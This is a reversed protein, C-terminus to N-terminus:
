GIVSSPRFCIMASMSAIIRSASRRDASCNSARGFPGTMACGYGRNRSALAAADYM